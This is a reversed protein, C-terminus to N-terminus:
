ATSRNLAKRFLDEIFEEYSSGILGAGEGIFGPNSLWPVINIELFFLRDNEVDYKWDVRIMDRCHFVIYAHISLLAIQKLFPENSAVPYQTNAVREGRMAMEQLEFSMIRRYVPLTKPEENGYVTCTYERGSIYEEVLIQQDYRFAKRLARDLGVRSDVKSVGLSAAGRRPKIVLPFKLKTLMVELSEGKNVVHWPASLIGHEAAIKKATLKDYGQKCTVSESGMVPVHHREFLEQFRGSADDLSVLAPKMRVIREVHKERFHTYFLLDVNFYKRLTCYVDYSTIYSSLKDPAPEGRVLVLKPGGTVLKPYKRLFFFCKTPQYLSVLWYYVTPFKRRWFFITHRLLWLRDLLNKRHIKHDPLLRTQFSM